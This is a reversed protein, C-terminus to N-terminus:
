NRAEEDIAVASLLTLGLDSVRQLLGQLEAQDRVTGVLVTNGRERTLAMGEFAPRVRDSLEGEVTLRYERSPM